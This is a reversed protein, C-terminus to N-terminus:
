AKAVRWVVSRHRKPLVEVFKLGGINSNKLPRIVYGLKAPEIPKGKEGRSILIAHM